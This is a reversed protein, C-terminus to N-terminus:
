RRNKLPAALSEVRSKVTRRDIGLVRAAQEYGGAKNYVLQCYHNLLEDASLQGQEAQQLWDSRDAVHQAMPPRYERRVLVNRVCQELERINGPWAYDRPMQQGIWQEVEDVLQAVDGTPRESAGGLERGVIFELLSHLAAPSDALQERLSPVAIMDGCIRYYLDERFRGERMECALDRNTAAILKGAFHRPETEGLRSYERQQIVRLLKVQIARDLEGIEDLFVAGGPRCQELWGARDGSAGTFAGKRHGFLESEILTPSFAALNVGVFTADTEFRESPEDFRLFQSLGIARAVLEKGTGSPGTILTSLGAMRDFLSRRFRRLDHTFISQWVQARLQTAPRSQGVLCMFIHTFARRVQYLCAFLHADGALEARHDSAVPQLLRRRDSAFARWTRAIDIHRPADGEVRLPAVHRYYTVYTVLDDYQPVDRAAITQGATCDRCVREALESARATLRAVNPREAADTAATRSWARDDDVFADGLARQELEIRLPEFPNCHTVEALTALFQRDRSSFLKSSM